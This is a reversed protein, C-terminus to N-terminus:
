LTHIYDWCAKLISTERIHSYALSLSCAWGFCVRKDHRLIQKPFVSTHIDVREREERRGGGGRGREEREEERKSERGRDTNGGELRLKVTGVTHGRM